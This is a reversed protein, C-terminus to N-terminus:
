EHSFDAPLENRARTLFIAITNLAIFDRNNGASSAFKALPCAQCM